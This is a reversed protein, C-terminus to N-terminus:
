KSKKSIVVVGLGWLALDAVFVSTISLYYALLLNISILVCNTLIIWGLANRPSCGLAMIKHHIHNKDPMFIPKHARYRVYMIRLVDLCPILLVTYALIFYTGNWYLNAGSPILNFIKVTLYGIIGGIVLSGTDGMFIKSDINERVGFVNTFCFPLLTGVSAFAFISLDIQENAYFIIGYTSLAIISLLSALGDIGDILNIANSVYIYFLISLPVGLFPPISNIGFLNHASKFYAGASVILIASFLQFVFKTKYDVGLIDDLIGIIYLLFLALGVLIFNASLDIPSIFDFNFINTLVISFWTAFMISPYFSVGGLRSAWGQHVKRSCTADILRKKLSLLLIHPLSFSVALFSILFALAIITM